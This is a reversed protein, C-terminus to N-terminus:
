EVSRLDDTRNKAQIRVKIWTYNHQPEIKDKTKGKNLGKLALQIKLNELGSCMSKM